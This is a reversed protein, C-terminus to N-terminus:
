QAHPNSKRYEDVAHKLLEPDNMIKNATERFLALAKDEGLRERVLQGVGVRFQRGNWEKVLQWMLRQKWLPSKKYLRGITVSVLWEFDDTDNHQNAPEDEPFIDAARENNVLRKTGVYILQVFGLMDDSLEPMMSAKGSQREMTLVSSYIYSLCVLLLTDEHKNITDVENVFWDAYKSDKQLKRALEVPMSLPTYYKTVIEDVSKGAVAQKAFALTDKELKQDNM